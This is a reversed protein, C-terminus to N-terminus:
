TEAGQEVEEDVTQALRELESDRPLDEDSALYSALAVRRVSFHAATPAPLAEVRSSGDVSDAVKGELGGGGGGGGGRLAGDGGGGAYCLVALGERVSTVAERFSARLLRADRASAAALLALSLLAVGLGALALPHGQQCRTAVGVHFRQLPDGTVNDAAGM